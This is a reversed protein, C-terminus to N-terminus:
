ADAAEACVGVGSVGLGLASIESGNAMFGLLRLAKISFARFVGFGSAELRFVEYGYVRM